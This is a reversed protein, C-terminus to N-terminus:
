FVQGLHGHRPQPIYHSLITIELNIDIQGLEAAWRLQGVTNQYYNEQDDELVPYVDLEPHYGPKILSKATKFLQRGYKTIEIDVNKTSEKICTNGSM